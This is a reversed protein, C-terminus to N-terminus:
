SNPNIKVYLANIQEMLSHIMNKSIVSKGPKLDWIQSLIKLHNLNEQRVDSNNHIISNRIPRIDGMLDCEVQDKSISLSDAIQGRFNEEWLHYIFVIFQKSLQSEFEGEPKLMELLDKIPMESTTSQGPSQPADPFQSGFCVKSDKNQELIHKSNNLWQRKGMNAIDVIISQEHCNSRIEELTRIAKDAAVQPISRHLEIRLKFTGGRRYSSNHDTM